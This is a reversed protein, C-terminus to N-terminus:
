KPLQRSSQSTPENQRSGNSVPWPVHWFAVIRSDRFKRAVVGPLGEGPAFSTPVGSQETELMGAAARIVLRDGQVLWIFTLSGPAVDAAARCAAALVDALGLSTTLAHALRPLPGRELVVGNAM